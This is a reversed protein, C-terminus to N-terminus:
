ALLGNTTLAARKQHLDTLLNRVSPREIPDDNVCATILDRLDQSYVRQGPWVDLGVHNSADQSPSERLCFIYWLVLGVQYVDTPEGPYTKERPDYKPDVMPLEDVDM